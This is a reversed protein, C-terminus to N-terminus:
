IHHNLKGLLVKQKLKKKTSFVLLINEDNKENTIYKTKKYNMEFDCSGNCTHFTDTILYIIGQAIGKKFNVM